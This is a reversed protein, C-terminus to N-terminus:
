VLENKTRKKKALEHFPDIIKEDVFYTLVSAVADAEHETKPKEINVIKKVANKIENKKAKGSGTVILKIHKPAIERVPVNLHSCCLKMVGVSEQLNQRVFSKGFGMSLEMVVVSPKYKLIVDKLSNYIYEYRKGDSDFDPFVITDHFEPNIKNDCISLLAVGLNRISAPDIGLVRFYSM